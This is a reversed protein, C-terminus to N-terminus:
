AAERTQEKEVLGGFWGLLEPLFRRFEGVQIALDADFLAAADEATAKQNMSEAKVLDLFRLRKVALDATLMFSLRDAWSLALATVEATRGMLLAEIESGALPHRRFRITADDQEIDADTGLEMQEPVGRGDLWQTLVNEPRLRVVPVRAPLGGLTQRLASVAAEAMKASAADVIVMRLVEDYLVFTRRIRTLADPLREAILADKVGARERKNLARGQQEELVAIRAETLSRIAAAPLIKEEVQWCMLHARQVTWRLPSAVPCPPVWGASSLSLSPVPQFARAQLLESEAADVPLWAFDRDVPYFMLNKFWM